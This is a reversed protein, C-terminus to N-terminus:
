VQVLTADLRPSGSLPMAANFLGRAFPSILLAFIATGGSSQGFVTVRDPDGGFAAINRQVWRLATIQDGIGYNGKM